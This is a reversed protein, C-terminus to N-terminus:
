FILKFNDLHTKKTQMSVIRNFLLVERLFLL